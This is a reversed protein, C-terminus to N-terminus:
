SIGHNEKFFNKSIKVDELIQSKLEKFTKFKKNERLFELFEIKILKEETIDKLLHTEISFNNDTSRKGIFTISPINNTKTIYVGEKPILYNKLLTINITPVFEKSGLGQGKIHLGKIKYTHGLFENAKKINGEKLFKRIVRSHVGIGNIKIENIVEIQFHKKLLNIDGERNKGFRFDEGIVIKQINEKKLINIFELATLNKIKELEFFKCEITTYECRDLGPTLNGGKEIVILFNAKKLLAQHAIHMGDFGGITAIKPMYM